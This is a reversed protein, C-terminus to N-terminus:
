MVLFHIIIHKKAYEIVQKDNDLGVIKNIQNKCLKAIIHSGYGSGCAFDLVNGNAHNSAFHYRAIHEILLGNTIKM